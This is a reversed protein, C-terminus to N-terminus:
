IFLSIQLHQSIAEIFNLGSIPNGISDLAPSYCAIAGQNPVIAILAGSVGSKMPLGVKVAYQPSPEYLGCTLMLANVIQRHQSNISNSECALLNGIKALDEVKGSICCIQEYTDIATEINTINGHEYLYQAIAVNQQSRNARVSNLMESDLYLQSGALQNLWQCFCQTRDSSDKGPLKDAVTIAGSNIMPNRPFGHDSILQDLSNFAMASTQTGVMSLVRESGLYELLYLLSFPKIVSMLPFLCGKDGLSYNEGSQCRIHAAFWSPNAVALLPIRKIVTGTCGQRKGEQIWVSLNNINIKNLRGM